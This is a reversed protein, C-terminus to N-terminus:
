SASRVPPAAEILHFLGLVTRQVTVIKLAATQVLALPEQNWRCGARELHKHANRDQYRALLSLSSRGHELLIIRGDARCVRSMERLAAIPDSFTCTSLASVVVNFSGDPFGLAEADMVHFDVKLGLRAARQRAMELMQPSLDIATIESGSPFLPFNSGTGCAVDLIKGSAKRMIQRRLRVVGLIHDAFWLKHDYDKALSDFAQKVEQKSLGPQRGTNFSDGTRLPQSQYKPQM